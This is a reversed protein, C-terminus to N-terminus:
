GFVFESIIRTLELPQDSQVAHGAGPVTEVILSPLRRKMAEVDEAHVFKSEGGLVLVSPCTIRSVDEWLYTFDSPMRPGAGAGIDYRWAWRGYELKLANNRVGRRVGEAGRYPSLAIAAEAMEDFSAYTPQEGILSVTGREERTLKRSPDNVQPTVDVIVAKSVLQPYAGALRITTAGGLSMGVVVKPDPAVRPLVTALADANRAPSYDRDKRRDSHGHGPLDFAIAPRGLALAVYDWTHANQGGGHLFVIEPSEDGWVIASMAQGPEVEITQRAVAPKGPYAIGLENAIDEFFGFEDYDDGYRNGSVLTGERSPYDPDFDNWESQLGNGAAQL